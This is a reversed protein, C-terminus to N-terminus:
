QFFRGLNEHLYAKAATVQDPDMLKYLKQWERSAEQFLPRQQDILYKQKKALMLFYSRDRALEAALANKM